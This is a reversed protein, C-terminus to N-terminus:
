GCREAGRPARRGDGPRDAPGEGHPRPDVGDLLLALLLVTAVGVGVGGVVDSVDHYGLTVLAVNLAAPVLLVLGGLLAAASRLLRRGLPRGPLLLLVAVAAVASAATAHGSPYADGHGPVVERGVLPKLWLETVLLAAVPAALALVAARVHGLTACAAALVVALLLMTVPNALRTLDHLPQGWDHLSATLREGARDWRTPGPDQSLHRGLVAVVCAAAAALALAAPASPLLRCRPRM